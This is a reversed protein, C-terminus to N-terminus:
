WVSAIHTLNPGSGKSGGACAMAQTARSGPTTQQVSGHGRPGCARADTRTVACRGCVVGIM